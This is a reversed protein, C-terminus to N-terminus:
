NITPKPRGIAYGQLFEIGLEKASKKINEDSVFEAIVEINLDKCLKVISKVISRAQPNTPLEQILFGDIKLINPSLALLYNFTSYGAGFDDIAITVGLNKLKDIRINLESFNNVIRDELLEISIKSSLEKKQHITDYVLEYLTEDLFDGIDFNISICIHHKEIAKFAQELVYKSLARYVTNTKINNIFKAPPIINDNEDIIRILAEYKVIKNQKADTIPQFYVILRDEEIAKAVERPGFIDKNKTRSEEFIEVRNRGSTKAIYLMKDAISIADSISRNLHPTANFGVSAAVNIHTGDVYIPDQSIRKQISTIIDKLNESSKNDSKDLFLLFEEGGYRILTDKSRISNNLKQSFERLVKDGVQHGYTDNIRKFHDLDIIAIAINNLNILSSINNLYHRNYLGTLADKQTKKRQQYFLFGFIYVLFMFLLLLTAIIFLYNKIPSFSNDIIAREKASYDFVILMKTQNNYIVPHLYTVWLGDINAQSQWQPNKSSWAEEWTEPQAPDFKQLYEGRDSSSGDLIYRYMGQSDKAMVYVYPYQLGTFISLIQNGRERTSEPLKFINQNKLKFNEHLIREINKSFTNVNQRKMNEIHIVARDLVNTYQFFLFLIAITLLTTSILFIYKIINDNREM